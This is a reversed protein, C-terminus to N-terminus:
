GQLSVHLEHDQITCDAYGIHWRNEHIVIQDCHYRYSDLPRNISVWMCNGISFKALDGEVIEKNSKM